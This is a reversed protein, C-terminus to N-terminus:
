WASVTLHAYVSHCEVLVTFDNGYFRRPLIKLPVFICLSLSGAEDVEPQLLLICLFLSRKSM